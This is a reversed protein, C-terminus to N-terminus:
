EYERYWIATWIPKFVLDDIALPILTLGLGLLLTDMISELLLVIVFLTLFGIFKVKFLSKLRNGVALLVVGFLLIFGFTYRVSDSNNVITIGRVNMAIIFMLIILGFTISQTIIYERKHKPSLKFFNM